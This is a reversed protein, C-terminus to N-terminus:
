FRRPVNMVECELSSQREETEDKEIPQSALKTEEPTPERGESQATKVAKKASEIAEEQARRDKPACPLSM